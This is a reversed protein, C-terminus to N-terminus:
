PGKIAGKIHKHTTYSVNTHMISGSEGKKIVVIRPGMNLIKEAAKPLNTEVALM